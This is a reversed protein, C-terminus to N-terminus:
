GEIMSFDPLQDESNIEDVPNSYTDGYRGGEDGAIVGISDNVREGGWMTPKSTVVSNGTRQNVILYVNRGRSVESRVINATLQSENIHEALTKM